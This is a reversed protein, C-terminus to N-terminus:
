RARGTAKARRRRLGSSATSSSAFARARSATRGILRQQLLTIQNFEPAVSASPRARTVAASPRADRDLGRWPGGTRVAHAVTSQGARNPSLLGRMEGPALTLDVANVALTSEHPKVKGRDPLTASHWGPPVIRVGWRWKTLWTHIRHLPDVLM